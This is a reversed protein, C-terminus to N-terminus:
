LTRRAPRILYVAFVVPVLGAVATMAALAFCVKKSLSDARVIFGIDVAIVVLLALCLAKLWSGSSM